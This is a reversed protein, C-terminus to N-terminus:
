ENFRESAKRGLVTAGRLLRSGLRRDAVAGTVLRPGADAGSGHPAESEASGARDEPLLRAM